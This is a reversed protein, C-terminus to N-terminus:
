CFAFLCQMASMYQVATTHDVLLNAGETDPGWAWIKRAVIENWDFKDCYLEMREKTEAKPCAPGEEIAKSLEEDMPEAMIYLRNHKNRSKALCTQNSLAGVIERYSVVPDSM